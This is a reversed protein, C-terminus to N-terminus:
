QRSRGCAERARRRSLLLGKDNIRFRTLLRDGLQDEAKKQEHRANYSILGMATIVAVAVSGWTITYHNITCPYDYPHKEPSWTTYVLYRIASTPRVSRPHAARLAGRRLAM